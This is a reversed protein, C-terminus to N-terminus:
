RILRIIGKPKWGREERTKRFAAPFTQNHGFEDLIGTFQGQEAYLEVKHIHWMLPKRKGTELDLLRNSMTWIPLPNRANLRGLLGGAIASQTTVYYGDIDGPRLKDEVFSGDLYIETVGEDWLQAALITLQGVLYRRWTTDWNPLNPRPGVVLLSQELESLTMPYDGPPLVGDAFDAPLSNPM